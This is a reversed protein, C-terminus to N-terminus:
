QHHLHVYQELIHICRLDFSVSDESLQCGIEVHEYCVEIASRNMAAANPCTNKCIYHMIHAWSCMFVLQM